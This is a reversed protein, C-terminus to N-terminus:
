PLLAQRGGQSGALAILSWPLTISVLATSCLALDPPLVCPSGSDRGPIPSEAKQHPWLKLHAGRLHRRQLLPPPVQLGSHFDYTETAAEPVLSMFLRQERRYDTIQSIWENSLHKYPSQQKGSAARHPPRRFCLKRKWVLQSGIQLDLLYLYIYTFVLM